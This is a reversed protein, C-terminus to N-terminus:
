DLRWKVIQVSKNEPVKKVVAVINREMNNMKGTSHIKFYNSKVTLEAAIEIGEMGSVKKYWGPQSLDNEKNKRYEDIRDALSVTIADSLARLVMIPATNINITGESDVTVLQALSPKGNGGAYLEKTIGKIMLLEEICDLPANKAEYPPDQTAYYLSEAGSGTVENDEDIWDKIAAVIADAQSPDLGFEPQKLLRLLVGPVPNDKSGDVKNLPIKGAEDEVKVVFYGDDFFQKAQVSLTETNAWDDRLTTEDDNKANVLLSAAGYFGSKAIYTLKIGDSINAADYIDARSSRNLEISLAVLISVILIVTILAVGQNKAFITKWIKM